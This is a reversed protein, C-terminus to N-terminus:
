SNLNHIIAYFGNPNLDNWMKQRRKNELRTIGELSWSERHPPRLPRQANRQPSPPGSSGKWSRIPGPRRTEKRARTARGAKDRRRMTEAPPRGSPPWKWSSSATEPLTWPSGSTWRSWGPSPAACVLGWLYLNPGKYRHYRMRAFTNMRDQKM